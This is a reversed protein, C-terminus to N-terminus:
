DVGGFAFIGKLRGAEVRRSAVPAAGTGGFIFIGKLGGAQPYLIFSLGLRRCFIEIIMCRETIM